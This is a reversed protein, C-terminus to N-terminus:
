SQRKSGAAQSQWARASKRYAAPSQGIHRTFVRTFYHRNGFGTEIAIREISSQSFLLQHAASKVRQAAVYQAPPRGAGARFTRIFHSEGMHCCRALVGNSLDDGLHEEIYRLAPRVTELSGSIEQCRAIQSAPVSQLYKCLAQYLFSKIQLHL